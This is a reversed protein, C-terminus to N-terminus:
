KGITERNKPIPVRISLLMNRPSVGHQLMINFLLTLHVFLKHCGNILFDLSVDEVGDLKHPKLRRFAMSVDDTTYHDSSTCTETITSWKINCGLETLVSKMDNNNYSVSNYLHNYKNRFITSIEDDCQSSDAINSM